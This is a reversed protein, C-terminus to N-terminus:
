MNNMKHEEEKLESLLRLYTHIELLSMEDIDKKGQNLHYMLYFTNEHYAVVEAKRM